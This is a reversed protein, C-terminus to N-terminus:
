EIEGFAVFEVTMLSFSIGNFCGGREYSGSRLIVSTKSDGAGFYTTAM